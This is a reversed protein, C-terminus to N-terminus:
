HTDDHAELAAIEPLALAIRTRYSGDCEGLDYLAHAEGYAHLLLGAGAALERAAAKLAALEATLAVYGAALRDVAAPLNWEGAPSLEDMYADCKTLLITAIAQLADMAAAKERALIIYEKDTVPPPSPRRRIPDYDTADTCSDCRVERYYHARLKGGCHECKRKM